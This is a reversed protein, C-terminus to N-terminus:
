IAAIAYDFVDTEKLTLSNGYGAEFYSGDFDGAAWDLGAFASSSKHPIGRYIYESNYGINASFNEAAADQYYLVGLLLVGIVMVKNLM